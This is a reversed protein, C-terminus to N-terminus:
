EAAMPHPHELSKPSDLNECVMDPAAHYWGADSPATSPEDVKLPSMTWSQQFECDFHSARCCVRFLVLHITM